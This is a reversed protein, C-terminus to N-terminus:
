WREGNVIDKYLKLYKRAAVKRDFRKVAIRRCERPDIDDVHKIAYRYAELNNCVFGNVGDEILEPMAGFDSAIVPTGCAMAEAVVLGFAEEYQVPFLLAKANQYLRLKMKHHYSDMAMPVFWANPIENIVNIYAEGDNAHIGSFSGSVFLDFDLESALKLALDLGKSPHARGFWLFYNDKEEKLTYFDTNVGWYVYRSTEPLRGTPKVNVKFPSREYGTGGKIGLELHKKSACVVNYPPKPLSWVNGNLTSIANGNGWHYAWQAITKGHSCDHIVDSDEIIDRYWELARAEAQHSVFGYTCPIYHLHGQRKYM